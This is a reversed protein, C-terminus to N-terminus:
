ADPLIHLFEKCHAFKVRLVVKTLMDALNEKTHIKKLDIDGEDLIKLTSGLMSTSRRQM